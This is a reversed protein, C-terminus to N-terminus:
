GPIPWRHDPAADEADKERVRATCGSAARDGHRIDGACHWRPRDHPNGVAGELPRVNYHREAIASPKHGM